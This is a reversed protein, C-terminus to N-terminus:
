KLKAVQRSVDSLKIKGSRRGQIYKDINSVDLIGNEGTGPSASGGIGGTLGSRFLNGYEETQKKMERLADRVPLDLKIPNGDGDKSDLTIMAVYEGTPNNKEDLVEDLRTMPELLAVLQSPRYAEEQVAADTLARRKTSSLYKTEWHKAKETVETLQTTLRSELEKKEQTALEEKTMMSANLKDIQSQLRTKEEDSLGKARKFQELQAALEKKDQVERSLRKQLIKDVQEQNFMKAKGADPDSPDGADSPDPDPDADPDPDPDGDGYYLRDIFVNGRAWPVETCHTSLFTVVCGPREITKTM